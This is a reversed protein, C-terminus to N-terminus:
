AGTTLASNIVIKVLHEPANPAVLKQKCLVMYNMGAAVKEPLACSQMEALEWGRALVSLM